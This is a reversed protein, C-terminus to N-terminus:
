REDVDVQVDVPGAFAFVLTLPFPKGKVLPQTLGDLQVHVRGPRFTVPRRPRVELYAIREVVGSSSGEEIFSATRAVPSRVSLLRETDSGRNEITMYVKATTAALPTPPAWVSTMALQGWYLDRARAPVAAGVTLFAATVFSSTLVQRRSFEM